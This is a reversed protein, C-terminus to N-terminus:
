VVSIAGFEHCIRWPGGPLVVALSRSAHRDIRGQWQDVKVAVQVAVHSQLGDQVQTALVIYRQGGPVDFPEAGM